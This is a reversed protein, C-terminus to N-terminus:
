VPQNSLEGDVNKAFPDFVQVVTKMIARRWSMRKEMQFMLDDWTLPYFASATTILNFFILVLFFIFLRILVLNIGKM